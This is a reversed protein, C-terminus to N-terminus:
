FDMIFLLAFYEPIPIEFNAIPIKLSKYYILHEHIKYLIKILNILLYEKNLKNFSKTNITFIIYAM